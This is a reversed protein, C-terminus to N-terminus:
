RRAAAQRRGGDTSPTDLARPRLCIATPSSRRLRSRLRERRAAMATSASRSMLIDADARRPPLASPRATLGTTRVSLSYGTSSTGERWAPGIWSAQIPQRASRSRIRATRSRAASSATNRRMPRKLGHLSSERPLSATHLRSTRRCPRHFRVGSPMCSSRVKMTLSWIGSLSGTATPVPDRQARPGAESLTPTALLSMLRWLRKVTM